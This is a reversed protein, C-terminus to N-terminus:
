NVQIQKHLKTTSFFTEFITNKEHHNEDWPIGIHLFESRIFLYGDAGHITYKGVDVMFM